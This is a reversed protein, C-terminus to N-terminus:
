PHKDQQLMKLVPLLKAVRQFNSDHGSWQLFVDPTVGNVENSGDARLRVCDPMKLHAGSNKLTLPIGGNTYGCGAGGTIEGLITGAHNDQLVAAFYEAASWTNRDVIVAIPLADSKKSYAYRSPQFLAERSVLSDLSGPAAYDLIGSVFLLNKVLLSCTLKGTVWVATRDCPQRSEEVAKRLTAAAVNLSIPAQKHSDIDTQVQRLRDELQSTWHEHRIFAMRSDHLPIPSLARPVADVWNSGGGNNTIDILLSGAGASQLANARSVLAVTLLNATAVELEDECKDDCKASETLHLNLAAKACVQPFAHETFLGIRIIGISRGNAVRLLGGPFLNSNDALEAFDPIASFDLGPRLPSDYGLRACIDKPAETTRNASSNAGPWRIELHGDGFAALFNEIGKRADADDRADRVKAETESRLKPLDMKRNEVAWELNAYHSAMEGLIQRFDELWAQSNFRSSSPSLVNQAACTSVLIALLVLTRNM